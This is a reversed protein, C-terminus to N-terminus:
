KLLIMKKTTFENGYKLTYYYVGSSLNIPNWTIEYTGPKLVQKVPNDIENGLVNYIKLDVFNESKISYKIKTTSNFPNPYNQELSFTEPIYLTSNISTYIGGCERFRQIFEQLYIDALRLSKFFLLNENNYYEASNTINYSGTILWANDSNINEGDIIMYKHHFIGTPYNSKLVTCWKPSSNFFNYKSGTANEADEKNMIGRVTVMNNTNAFKIANAADDNTFTMESFNISNKATKIIDVLRNLTKDTPSFYLEVNMGDIIFLHPTNDTKNKSFKAKTVDYNDSNSGWMEEFESTYASALPKNQIEVINQFDDFTGPDTPNWSGSIIWDDLESSNDRNDFIFFKNHQLGTGDNTGCKDTLVPVGANILKRVPARDKNDEEIIFRIKVGRNKANIIADAIADGVSGSFSYVCLDISYKASDIRNIIKQTFNIEGKAKEIKAITTDVKKNFFVNITSPNNSQTYIKLSDFGNNYTDFFKLFYGTSPELNNIVIKQLGNHIKISTVPNNKSINVVKLQIDKDSNYTFSIERNDIKLNTINSNIQSFSYYSILLLLIFLKKM